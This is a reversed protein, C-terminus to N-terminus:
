GGCGLVTGKQGAVFAPTQVTGCHDMVLANNLSGTSSQQLDVSTGVCVNQECSLQVFPPICGLCQAMDASDLLSRVKDKDAVGVVLGQDLCNDVVLCCDADTQCATAKKAYARAADRPTESSQSPGGAASAGAANMGGANMGAASAGAFQTSASGATGSMGGGSDGYPGGVVADSTCAALYFVSSLGLLLKFM